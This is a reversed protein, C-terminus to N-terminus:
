LLDGTGKERRGIVVDGVSIWISYVWVLGAFSGIADGNYRHRALAGWWGRWLAM